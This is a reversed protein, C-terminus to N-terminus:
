ARYPPLIEAPIPSFLPSPQYESFDFFLPPIIGPNFLCAANASVITLLM